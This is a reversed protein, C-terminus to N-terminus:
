SSKPTLVSIAKRVEKSTTKWASELKKLEADIGEMLEDVNERSPRVKWVAMEISLHRRRMREWEDSYRNRASDIADFLEEGVKLSESTLKDLREETKKRYKSLESDDPPEVLGAIKKTPKGATAKAASEKAKKKTKKTKKASSKAASKKATKKKTAM